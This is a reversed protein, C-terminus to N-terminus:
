DILSQIRAYAGRYVELFVKGNLQNYLYDVVEDKALLQEGNANTGGFGYIVYDTFFIRDNDNNGNKFAVALDSCNDLILAEEEATLPFASPVLPREGDEATAADVVLHKVTGLDVAKLLIALGVKGNEAVTQFEMGQEKVYGIPFTAGLWKRYYNTYNGNALEKLETMAADSLKPVMEGRYEVEGDIWASPGYSMLDNGEESYQYDFLALARYLKAEDDAVTALISWGNPKVSRWSTVLAYYNGDGDWDAVPPIVPTLNFGEISVTDNYVTTTQCYDFTMFGLNDNSLRARHDGGNLGATSEDKDFDQLILGEKYLMNLREVGDLLEPQFRGDQLEGNEDIYFWNSRSELGKVGWINMFSFMQQVRGAQYKRVYFPVADYETQGTLLQTNALVCRMLAVLEDANYAADQGCFLDSRNAYVGAYTTDIYDKLAQVLNAGDKVELDNQISVINKDYKVNIAQTGSGDATVANIVTDLTEPMYPEYYTDVTRDTDYVVTDDDLLQQVWDVRMIIMREVDDYGDFYPAVYIHGDGTTISEKVISNEELFTSFNPMIDLYEDLALFTGNTVANRNVDTLNGVMIDVNAFGQAELSSFAATIDKADTPTVDNITINLKEQLAAWVPKWDGERYIKGDAAAYEAQPTGSGEGVTYKMGIGSQYFVSMNLEVNNTTDYIDIGPEETEQTAPAETAATEPNETITPDVKVCGSITAMLLAIVLLLLGVKKM